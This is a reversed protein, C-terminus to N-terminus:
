HKPLEKLIEAAIQDPIEEHLDHGGQMLVQRSRTSLALWYKQNKAGRPGSESATIVLVPFKGIPMSMEDLLTSSEVYDVHETDKRWNFGEAAMDAPDDHAGEISVLAAVSAPRRSACWIVLNAGGSQGALVAPETLRLTERVEDQVDCLDNITRKRDPAPDSLGTGLRDYTCVRAAEALPQIFASPLSATGGSGTGAELLIAPEGDGVCRYHVAEGSGLRLEGEKAEPASSTTAPTSTSATTTPAEGDSGEGCGALVLAAVLVVASGAVAARPRQDATACAKAHDSPTCVAPRLPNM